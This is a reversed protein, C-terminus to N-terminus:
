LFYAFRDVSCRNVRIKSCCSFTLYDPFYEDFSDFPFILQIRLKVVIPLPPPPHPTFVLVLSFLCFSQTHYLAVEDGPEERYGFDHYPSSGPVGASCFVGRNTSYKTVHFCKIKTKAVGITFLWVQRDRSLISRSEHLSAISLNVKANVALAM